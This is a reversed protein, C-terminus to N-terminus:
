RKAPEDFLVLPTGKVREESALVFTGSREEWTQVTTTKQVIGARKLTWSYEVRATIKDKKGAKDIDLSVLDLDAIELEDAYKEYKELFAQRKEKPLHKVAQDYRGWRVGENYERAAATVRDRTSYGSFIC